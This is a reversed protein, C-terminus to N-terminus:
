RQWGQRKREPGETGSLLVAKGLDTLVLDSVEPLAAAATQACPFLLVMPEKGSTAIVQEECFVSLWAPSRM